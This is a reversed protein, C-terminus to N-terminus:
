CRTRQFRMSFCEDFPMTVVTTPIRLTKMSGTIRIMLCIGKMDAYEDDPNQLLRNYFTHDKSRAGLGATISDGIGIVRVPKDVWLKDFRERAVKPGAPGSGIPRALMFQIYFIAFSVLAIGFGLLISFRLQKRPM